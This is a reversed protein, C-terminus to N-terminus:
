GLSSFFQPRNLRCRAAACFCFTALLVTLECSSPEPTVRLKAVYIDSYDITGAAYITALGVDSDMINFYSGKTIFENVWVFEGDSNLQGAIASRLPEPIGAPARVTGSFFVGGGTAGSVNAWDNGPTGFQRLWQMDGDSDWRSVFIDSGGASLSALDGETGGSAYVNGHEDLSLGSVFDMENTGFQRYWLENGHADLKLVFADDSSTQGAVVLNALNDSALENIFKYTDLESLHHTWQHNGFQDYKAISAASSVFVTGSPGTAVSAGFYPRNVGDAIVQRAWQLTGFTDYRALFPFTGYGPTGGLGTQSIGAIYAGGDADAAVGWAADNAGEGLTRAWVAQGNSNYKVVFADSSGSNAANPNDFDGHTQGAVFVNGLSDFDSSFAADSLPTDFFREWETVVTSGEANQTSLIAVVLFSCAVILALTRSDILEGSARVPAAM